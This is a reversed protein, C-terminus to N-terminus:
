LYIKRTLTSYQCPMQKMRHKALNNPCNSEFNRNVYCNVITMMSLLDENERYNTLVHVLWEIFCSGEDPNRFSLHGPITSWCILFDSYNSIKCASNGSDTQDYAMSGADVKDGRCAQIFFLKPKGALTPCNNAIFLEYVTKPDLLMDYAWLIDQNGHTMFLVALADCESHDEHKALDTIKKYIEVVKLNNKVDVDFGLNTFLKKAQNCDKETGKREGLGTHQDFHSHNFIVCHGRRKHKMNYRLADSDVSMRAGQPRINVIEIQDEADENNNDDINNVEGNPEEQHSGVIAIEDM